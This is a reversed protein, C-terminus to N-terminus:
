DYQEGHGIQERAIDSIAPDEAPDPDAANAKELFRGAELIAVVIERTSWGAENASAVLSDLADRVVTRAEKARDAETNATPSPFM